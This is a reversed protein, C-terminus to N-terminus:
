KKRKKAPARPVIRKVTKVAKRVAKGAIKKETKAVRNVEREVAKWNQKLEAVASQLDAQDISRVNQYAKMTEDVIAKFAREDLKKIKKANKMVEAHLKNAWAAAKKRNGAADKSGYFYYGAGLAAGAAALGLGVGVAVKKKDIKAM